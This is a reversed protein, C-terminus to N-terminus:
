ARRGAWGLRMRFIFQHERVEFESGHARAFQDVARTVGDDWWSKRRQYDDGCLIGGGKVKGAFIELDDLAFEYRHNGDIYVWDFYGAEFQEAAARSTLRHIRVRSDAIERAFRQCVSEYMQDMDSQSSNSGGYGAGEYSQQYKWPDILHVTAPRVIKLIRSSFDGKWVGIEAGVSGKPFRRLLFDREKGRFFRRRLWSM